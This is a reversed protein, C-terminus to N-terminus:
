TCDEKGLNSRRRLRTWKQDYTNIMSTTIATAANDAMDNMRLLVLMSIRSLNIGNRTLKNHIMNQKKKDRLSHGNVHTIKVNMKGHEMVHLIRRYLGQNSVPDGNSKKWNYWDTTDWANHVWDTLAMVTLKSDSIVLVNANKDEHKLLGNLYRLGQYAAYGEAYVISKDMGLPGSITIYKNTACNMIVAAYSPYCESGVRKLSADSAIIYDPTM